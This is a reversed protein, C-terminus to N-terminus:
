NFFRMIATKIINSLKRVEASKREGSLRANSLDIQREALIISIEGSFTPNETLIKEMIEKKIELVLTPTLTVIDAARPEGTMLSMEGFFDGVGLKDIETCSSDDKNLQVSVVGDAIIFLSQDNDNQKVIYEGEEYMKRVSSEAVLQIDHKNLHNFIPVKQLLVQNKISENYPNARGMIYPNFDDPTRSGYKLAGLGVDEQIQTTLRGATLTVGAHRMTKHVEMLVENEQSNKLLRDTCDFAVVFKMGYQDVDVFKVWQLNLSRRGDVPKVKKLADYLLQSIFQPEHHPHFSLTIFIHFGESMRVQDPRHWNTIISRSIIENPITVETNQFTRIRTSRWSIDVVQGTIEDITVWDNSIFPKELNVFLGSFINSINPQIALGIIVTLVGSTALVGTLDLSFVNSLVFLTAVFFILAQSVIILINPIIIINNGEKYDIIEIKILMTIIITPLYYYSTHVTLSMLNIDFGYNEFFLYKLFISEIVSLSLYGGIPIIVLINFIRYIRRFRRLRCLLFLSLVIVFYTVGSLISIEHSAYINYFICLTSFTFICLLLVKSIGFLLNIKPADRLIKRM